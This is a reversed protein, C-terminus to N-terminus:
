SASSSFATSAAFSEPAVAREKPLREKSNPALQTGGLKLEGLSKRQLALINWEDYSLLYDNSKLLDFLSRRDASKLHKHEFNICNPRVPM